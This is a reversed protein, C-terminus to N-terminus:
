IDILLCHFHTKHGMQTHANTHTHRNLPATTLLTTQCDQLDVTSGGAVHRSSVAEGCVRSEVVSVALCVWDRLCLARACVCVCMYVVDTDAKRKRVAEKHDGQIKTSQHHHPINPLQPSLSSESCHRTTTAVSFVPHLRHSPQSTQFFQNLITHKREEKKKVWIKSNVLHCSNLYLTLGKQKAVM